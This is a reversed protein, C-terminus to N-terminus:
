EKTITEDLNLLANSVMTWASLELDPKGALVQAENQHRQFYQRETEFARVLAKLEFASPRRSTALRFGYTVRSATDVGGEKLIRRGLAQAAEFFGPDNLTTLAQLPTNSRPRRSLTTEHSPADFVTLSPYRISRRVFTYLSRRYRDEGQSEIWHDTDRDGGAGPFIWLGAPQPPMVPPGGIKTSLLGSAALAIDRVMEAEVRFRPGRTFLVNAPDRELIESTVTSAQRYTSSTVILRQMAKENWGQSVFETALWDLLEPHSPPEGKTGFDESTEVIGRGFFVEWIQNMRVRATLPNERGVLWQALGLRNQPGDAPLAGLFGPIGAPLDEAKDTFVGRIRLQTTPHAVAPNESLVPTTQLGLTEIQSQLEAIKERMPALEAGVERWRLFLVDKEYPAQPPAAAQRRAQDPVQDPAIVERAKPEPRQEWPITLLPRFHADIEVVKLPDAQTTVSLRFRGLAAKALESDHVITVRLVDGSTVTFPKEPVLVLRRPVRVGGKEPNLDLMLDSRWVQPLRYDIQYESQNFEDSGAPSVMPKLAVKSLRDASPGVEVDVRHVMFNGYFDRGPGGVPIRADRGNPLSADLLAEIQIGTIPGPVPSKAEIVYIDNEPSEGSVLVSGDQSATLTSGKPSDARTPHLPQWQADADILSREWAKWLTESNPYSKLQTEVERIERKLTERKAVQEPTSLEVTAETYKRQASADFRANNFFAVM